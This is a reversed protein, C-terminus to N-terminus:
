DMGLVLKRTWALKRVFYKSIIVPVFVGLVTSLVCCVIGNVGLAKLFVVRVAVQVANALIYIDMGYKGITVFPNRATKTIQMAVFCSAVIGFYGTAIKLYHEGSVVVSYNIIVLLALATMGVGKNLKGALWNHKKYLIGAYFFPLEFLINKLIGSPFKVSLIQLIGFIAMMLIENGKQNALVCVILATFFLAYLTWLQLNPNNGKLIEFLVGNLQVPTSAHRALVVKLPIYCIGIFFYPVMLRSFRSQIYKYKDSITDCKIAKSGCYGSIFFFLPMHFSYIFYFLRSLLPSDMATDSIAHGLVVLVMGIGRAADLWLLRKGTTSHSNDGGRNEDSQVFEDAREGLFLRKM